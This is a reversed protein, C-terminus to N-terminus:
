ENLLSLLDQLTNAQSAKKDLRIRLIRPFRLAVGSKHRNSRAIGEFGIEFVMEPKVVRVPGFKEITNNKIFKDVELMEQDTLGSYAKTFGVLKDGDWVAFTYDTYLNARRGHGAQAYIMVADITMPDLKWKWWEGRKRGSQYTSDKRKLMLGESGYLRSNKRENDLEQWNMGELVQSICLVPHAVAQVLKELKTRREYLPLSRIDQGRWELLDYAMFVVPCNKLKEKSVKLTGIRTQLTQFPLPKDKLVPLIEGDLVTGEPLLCALPEFEPFRDTVLEEGRSWVFLQGRRLILQGRIGDWKREAQWLQPEGLDETKELPYALCFPYPRSAAVDHESGLLAELTTSEPHWEGMLRHAVQNEPLHTHRSLARIILNRSVGVRFGGTIFKNFIFREAFDFGDWAWLILEKKQSESQSALKGLWLMWDALTMTQEQSRSPPPLFLAIAEALDGTAHYSEEFLWLPYGAAEAAWEHLLTVKVPRKPRRGSFLAIAWLKDKDPAQAFYDELAAIKDLTSNSGDLRLYLESFQKM